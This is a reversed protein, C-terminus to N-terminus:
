SNKDNLVGATASELDFYVPIVPPIGTIELINEVVKQPNLLAMKGGLRVVSKASNILMPIGISSIYTVESLDVLVHVNKGTCCRVFEVEVSYTGNMDLVGNLKILRIGSDLESYQLKM